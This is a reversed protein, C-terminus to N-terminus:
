DRREGDEYERVKVEYTKRKGKPPKVNLAMIRCELKGTSFALLEAEPPWKDTKVQFFWFVGAADWGMGDFLNYPDLCPTIKGDKTYVLDLGRKKRGDVHTKFWLFDWGEGFLFERAKKNSERMQERKKM